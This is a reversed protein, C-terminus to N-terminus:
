ECSPYKFSGIRTQWDAGNQEYYETTYWFTCGDAPDVSMESYDGWRGYNGDGPAGKGEVLSTEGQGLQGTPDDALRGAYRVSPNLSKSAASYGVAMDGQKDVALSPMFRSVGDNPAYVGQQHISATPGTGSVEYWAVGATAGTKVTHSLWLSGDVLQVQNMVRPSLSDVQEGPTAIKGFDTYKVPLNATNAFKSKSADSWDVNFTWLSINGGWISAIPEGSGPAPSASNAPMLSFFSSDTTAHQVNLTTSGLSERQLAYVGAGTYDSTGFNNTTFYVGDPGSGFKPYDPFDGDGAPVSYFTWTSTVPDKGSSVAVCEYFPGANEDVWAFDAIVWKGSPQDYVVTIDGGNHSDCADSGSKDFFDDYTFAAVQKGDAKAYIGVSTNVTQVFYDPGVTGNTDPPHGAGWTNFDLGKVNVLPDPAPTAGDDRQVHSSKQDAGSDKPSSASEEEEEKERESSRKHAKGHLTRADLKVRHGKVTSAEPKSGKADPDAKVTDSDHDHDLPAPVSDASGHADAYGTAAVLGAAVVAVSAAAAVVIKRTRRM